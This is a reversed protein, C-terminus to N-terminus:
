SSNTESDSLSENLTRAKEKEAYEIMTLAKPTSKVALVTTTIMGAVGIGTLIEPSRKEVAKLVTKFQKSLNPKKM